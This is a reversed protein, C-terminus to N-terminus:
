VHRHYPLSYVLQGTRIPPTREGYTVRRVTEEAVSLHGAVNSVFNTQEDPTLTQQWFITAQAYDADMVMSQWAGVSGNWIETDPQAYQPAPGPAIVTSPYYNPTSGLNDFNAAGDRVM